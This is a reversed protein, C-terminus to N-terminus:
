EAGPPLPLSAQGVWYKWGQPRRVYVDSYWLTYDVTAGARRGIIRLRATVVATAGCVRVSKESEDQIEYSTVKERADRLADTRTETRGDGLVLVYDEDLIEDIVAVDNQKVAAQFRRDLEAVAAACTQTTEEM